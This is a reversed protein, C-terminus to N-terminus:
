ACSAGGLLPTGFGLGGRAYKLYIMPLCEIKGISIDFIRLGIADFYCSDQAAQPRADYDKGIPLSAM